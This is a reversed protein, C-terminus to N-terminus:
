RRGRKTKFRVRLGARAAWERLERRIFRAGRRFAPWLSPQARTDKTEFEVFRAKPDGFGVAAQLGDARVNRGLSRKMTGQDVPVRVRAEAEIIASGEDITEAVVARFEAPLQALAASVETLGQVKLSLTIM